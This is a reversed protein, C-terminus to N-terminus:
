GGAGRSRTSSPHWSPSCASWPPASLRRTPRGPTRTRFFPLPYPSLPFCLLSPPFSLLLQPYLSPALPAFASLLPPPSPLLSAPSCLCLSLLTHQALHSGGGGEGKGEDGELSAQGEFGETTLAAQCTEEACHFSHDRPDLLLMADFSTYRKGCGPMPCVYNITTEKVDIKDRIKRRMKELRYATVDLLRAHDIAVYTFTLLGQEFTPSPPSQSACVSLAALILLPSFSPRTACRSSRPWSGAPNEGPISPKIM